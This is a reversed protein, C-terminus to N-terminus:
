RIPRKSHRRTMRACRWRTWLVTRRTRSPLYLNFLTKANAATSDLRKKFCLHFIVPVLPLPTTLVISDWYVCKWHMGMLIYSFLCPVHHYRFSILYYWLTCDKQLRCLTQRRVKSACQLALTRAYSSLKEQHEFSLNLRLMTSHSMITTAVPGTLVVFVSQKM